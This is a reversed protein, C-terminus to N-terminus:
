RALVSNVLLQVDLANTAGDNNVDTSRPIPGMGLVANVAVQIDRADVSGDKNVDAKVDAVIKVTISPIVDSEVGTISRLKLMYQWQDGVTTARAPVSTMDQFGPILIGNKFWYIRSGSEQVGEPHEYTYEAHLSEGDYVRYSPKGNVNVPMVLPTILPTIPNGGETAVSPKQNVDGVVCLVDQSVVKGGAAFQVRFTYSGSQLFSPLWSFLSSETSVGAGPTFVAGSPLGGMSGDVNTLGATFVPLGLTSNAVADFTVPQAENVFIPAIPHISLVDPIHLQTLTSNKTLAAGNGDSLGVMANTANLELYTMRIRGSYFLELQATNTLASGFQPVRQFTFVMCDPLDKVWVTGGSLPSLDCFLLSIRPVEFHSDLSPFNLSGKSYLLEASELAELTTVFGNYSLVPTTIQEGFFPIPARPYLPAGFVLGDETADLFVADNPEVPLTHVGSEYRAAYHRYNVYGGPQGSAYAATWDVMPEFTIQSFELDVNTQLFTQTLFNQDGEGAVVRADDRHWTLDADDNRQSFVSYFYEQGPVVGSDTFRELELTKLLVTGDLLLEKGESSGAGVPLDAFRDTRRVLIVHKAPIPVPNDWALEVADGQVSVARLHRVQHSPERPLIEVARAAFRVNDVGEDSFGLSQAAQVMILGLDAFDSGAGLLNQAVYFLQATSSIGIPAVKYDNFLGGDVLLYVMKNSIGSNVHVGGNDFDGTNLYDSYRDPQDFRPPDKMDRIAGIPLEEGIEWRVGDTDNGRGNTLDVFEGWIDSLSENIAGSENFYILNSMHETVGHTLEHATVDDTVFGEGFYMASGDWYANAVPCELFDCYRVIAILEMGAGDISDRGHEDMFFQYTDGLYDYAADVEAQGVPGQGESRQLTAAGSASNNKDYIKRSLGEHILNFHYAVAASHADIYFQHKISRTTASTVVVEWVVRVSGQNGVVEPAYISPTPACAGELAVGPYLGAAFTLAAAVAQEATRTPVCSVANSDLKSTDRLIDSMVCQIGGSANVQVVVEGGIVPLNLYRQNMRVYTYGGHARDSLKKFGVRNTRVGFARGHEALYARAVGEPTGVRATPQFSTGLPAGIFRLYGDSTEQYQAPIAGPVGQLSKVVNEVDAREGGAIAMGSVLVALVLVMPGVRHTM